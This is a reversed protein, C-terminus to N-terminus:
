PETKMPERRTGGGFDTETGRASGEDGVEGGACAPRGGIGTITLGGKVPPEREGLRAEDGAIKWRAESGVRHMQCCSRVRSEGTKRSLHIRKGPAPRIM